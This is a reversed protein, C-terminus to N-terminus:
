GKRLKGSKGKNKIFGCHKCRYMIEHIDRVGTRKSIADDAYYQEQIGGVRTSGCKVMSFWKKCVNCKYFLIKRYIILAIILLAVIQFALIAEPSSAYFIFEPLFFSILLLFVLFGLFIIM